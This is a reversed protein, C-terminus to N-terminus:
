AHAGSENLWKEFEALVRLLEPKTRNDNNEFDVFHDPPSGGYAPGSLGSYIEFVFGTECDRVSYSYQSDGRREPAGLKRRLLALFGSDDMAESWSIDPNVDKRGALKAGGASGYSLRQFREPTM